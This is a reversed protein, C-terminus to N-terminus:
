AESNLKEFEIIYNNISMNDKRKFKEFTDYAAYITQESDKLFLSDLKTILEQVGTDSHLKDINIELAEERTRGSLSLCIAPAQKSKSLDTFIQWLSLEKKGLKMSQNMKLSLLLRTTLHWKTNYFWFTCDSTM